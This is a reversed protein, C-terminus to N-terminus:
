ALALVRSLLFLGGNRPQQNAASIMSNYAGAFYVVIGRDSSAYVVPPLQVKCPNVHVKDPDFPSARSTNSNDMVLVCCQDANWSSWILCQKDLYIIIALSRLCAM